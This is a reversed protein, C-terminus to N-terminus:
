PREKRARETTRPPTVTQLADRLLEIGEAAALERGDDTLTLLGAGTRIAYGEEVFWMATQALVRLPRQGDAGAHELDEEATTGNSTWVMRGKREGTVMVALALRRAPTLKPCSM